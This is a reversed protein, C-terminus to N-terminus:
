IEISILEVGPIITGGDSSIEGKIKFSDDEKEKNKIESYPSYESFDMNKANIHNVIDVEKNGSNNNTKFQINLKSLAEDISSITEISYKRLTELTSLARQQEKVLEDLSMNKIMRKRVM